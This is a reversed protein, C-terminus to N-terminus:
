RIGGLLGRQLQSRRMAKEAEIRALNSKHQDRAQNVARALAEEKATRETTVTAQQTAVQNAIERMGRNLFMPSFGLGNESLSNRLNVGGQYGSRSIANGRQGAWLALRGMGEAQENIARQRSRLTEDGQSDFYAIEEPTLDALTPDYKPQPFAPPAFTPLGAPAGGFVGGVPRGAAPGQPQGIGPRAAPRTTYQPGPIWGGDIQRQIQGEMRDASGFAFSPRQFINPNPSWGQNVKAAIQREM